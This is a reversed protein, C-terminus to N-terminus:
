AYILDGTDDVLFDPVKNNGTFYMVDQNGTPDGIVAQYAHASITNVSTVLGKANVTIIPIKLDNGYTGINSNVTNFIVTTNGGTLGTGTVDGILTINGSPISFSVDSASTILGKDNVTFVPISTNSGFTGVNSNVTALTTTINTGTTGSATIDGVLTVTGGGSLIPLGGPTVGDSLRLEGTDEHYFMRGSEGIYTGAPQNNLRSTFLKQTTNPDNSM